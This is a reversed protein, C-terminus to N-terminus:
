LLIIEGESCIDSICNTKFSWVWIVIDYIIIVWKFSGELIIVRWEVWYGCTNKPFNPFSFVRFLPSFGSMKRRHDRPPVIALELWIQSHSLLWSLSVWCSSSSPSTFIIPHHPSLSGRYHHQNRYIGTTMISHYTHSVLCLICRLYIHDPNSVSCEGNELDRTM